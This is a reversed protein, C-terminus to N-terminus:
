SFRPISYNRCYVVDSIIQSESARRGFANVHDKKITHFRGSGTPLHKSIAFPFIQGL